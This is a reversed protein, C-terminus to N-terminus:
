AQKVTETGAAIKRNQKCEIWSLIENGNGFPDWIGRVRLIQNGNWCEGSDFIRVEFRVSIYLSNMERKAKKDCDTSRPDMLVSAERRIRGSIEACGIPRVSWQARLVKAEFYYEKRVM